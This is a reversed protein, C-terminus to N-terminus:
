KDVWQQLVQVLAVQLFLVPCICHGEVGQEGDESEIGVIGLFCYISHKKHVHTHHYQCSNIYM